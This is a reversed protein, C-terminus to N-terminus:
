ARRSEGAVLRLGGHPRVVDNSGELRPLQAGLGVRASVARSREMRVACRSRDVNALKVAFPRLVLADLMSFAAANAGLGIALTLVIRDDRAPLARRRPGGIRIEQVSHVCPGIESVLGFRAGAQRPAGASRTSIFHPSRLCYWLGPRGPSLPPARPSLREEALDGMATDRWDSFTRQAMTRDSSPSSRGKQCTPSPPAPPACRKSAPRRHGRLYRRSRGGREALPEGLRSSLLGKSELRDLSTYLAGRAIRRRSKEALVQRIPVTYADDGCQLIALLLLQELEGLYAPSAPNPMSQMTTM